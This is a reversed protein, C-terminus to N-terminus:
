LMTTMKANALRYKTHHSGYVRYQSAKTPLILSIIITPLNHALISKSRYRTIAYGRGLCTATELYVAM